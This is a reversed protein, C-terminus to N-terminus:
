EQDEVTAASGEADSPEIDAEDEEKVVRAVDKVVDGSDLNM